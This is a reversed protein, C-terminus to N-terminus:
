HPLIVFFLLPKYFPSILGTYYIRPPRRALRALYGARRPGVSARHGATHGRGRPVAVRAGGGRRLDHAVAGRRGVGGGVRAGRVRRARRGRAAHAAGAGARVAPLVAGASAPPVAVAQSVWRLIVSEDINLISVCLPSDM